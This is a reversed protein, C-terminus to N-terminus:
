GSSWWPFGMTKEKKFNGTVKDSLQTETKQKTNKNSWLLAKNYKIHGQSTWALYETSLMQRNVPPVKKYIAKINPLTAGLNGRNYWFSKVKHTLTNM